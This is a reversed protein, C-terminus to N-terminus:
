QQGPHSRNSALAVCYKTLEDFHFNTRASKFELNEGEKGRIWGELAEIRSPDSTM